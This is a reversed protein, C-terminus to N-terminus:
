KRERKRMGGKFREHARVGVRTRACSSSSFPLCNRERFKGWFRAWFRGSIEMLDMGLMVGFDQWFGGRVIGGFDMCSQSLDLGHVMGWIWALDMGSHVGFDMGSNDRNSVM